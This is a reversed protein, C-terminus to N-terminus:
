AVRGKATWDSARRRQILAGPTGAGAAAGASPTALTFRAVLADLAGAMDALAGASAVVEEVQASLEETAASVEEAAASNEESVAAISDISGSVTRSSEGMRAAGANTRAAIAAIADTAAVVGASAEGMADVAATIREVAATTAAVQAAIAELSTGAQDALASGATVEAAGAGMARVAADTEQQVLAILEAIEKTARGSREALKRVEDAVVAFGKGQEGARAAEIAANLALLNTQEAIDDITEVIAGIQGSKEGLETVKAASADVAARIRAMGTVTKAVAGLGEAAAAAAEASVATVEASARGAADIAGSLRTVAASSAEVKRTTEAAGAGVQGIVAGLEQVAASTSSAAQAQDQAGAAVQSITGAIQASAAGSQNAADTLERSTRAVGDSAAKVEGITEALSARATEYSAITAQLKALMANAVAATQGIEDSGYRAIPRTVPRAALTLDNTALAALSAELGAADQETLSTLTEQVAQVGATIRRAIYFSLAFGVFLAVVIGAIIVNRSSEFTSSMSQSAHSAASGADAVLKAIPAMMKARVPVAPAIEAAAKQTNGALSDARIADFMPQYEAAAQAYEDLGAKQADTLYPNARLEKLHEDILQDDAAIAADIKDQTAKDLGPIAGYVVARARDVLATNVTNLDVIAMTNGHFLRDGDGNLSGLSSVGLGGVLLMLALIAGSTGLLQTRVNLKV